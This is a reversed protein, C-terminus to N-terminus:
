YSGKVIIELKKKESSDDARKGSAAGQRHLIRWPVLHGRRGTPRNEDQNSTDGEFTKLHPKRHLHNRQKLQRMRILQKAM